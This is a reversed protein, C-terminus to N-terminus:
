FRHHGGFVRGRVAQRHGLDAQLHHTHGDAPVVPVGVVDWEAWPRLRTLRNM